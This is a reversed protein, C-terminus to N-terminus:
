RICFSMVLFLQSVAYQDHRKIRHSFQKLKEWSAAELEKFKDTLDMSEKYFLKLNLSIWLIFVLCLLLFLFSFLVLRTALRM